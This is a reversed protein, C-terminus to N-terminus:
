LLPVNCRVHEWVSLPGKLHNDFKLHGDHTYETVQPTEAQLESM